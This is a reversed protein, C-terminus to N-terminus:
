MTQTAREGNGSSWRFSLAMWDFAMLFAVGRSAANLGVMQALRHWEEDSLMVHYAGNGAGWLARCRYVVEEVVKPLQAMAARKGLDGDFEDSFITAHGGIPSRKSRPRGFGQKAEAAVQIRDPWRVRLAQAPVEARVHRVAGVM